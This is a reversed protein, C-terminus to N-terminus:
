KTQKLQYVDTLDDYLRANAMTTYCLAQSGITGVLEEVTTRVYVCPINERTNVNCYQSYREGVFYFEPRFDSSKIEM